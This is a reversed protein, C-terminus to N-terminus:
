AITPAKWIIVSYYEIWKVRNPVLIWYWQLMDESKNCTSGIEHFFIFSTCCFFRWPLTLSVVLVMVNYMLNYKCWLKSNFIVVYRDNMSFTFGFTASQANSASLNTSITSYPHRDICSYLNSIYCGLSLSSDFHLAFHSIWLSTPIPQLHLASRPASQSSIERPTTLLQLYICSIAVM